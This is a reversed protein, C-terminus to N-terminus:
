FNYFYINVDLGSQVVKNVPNFTMGAKSPTVTVEGFLDSKSWYGNADTTVSGYGNSFSITVGPIGQNYRDVARGNISYTPLGKFDVSYGTGISEIATSSPTFHFGSKTPTVVVPGYLDSKQWNGNADTTVNTFGGSFSITVNALGYGYDNTVKGFLRYAIKGTFNVASNANSVSISVPDFVKGAKTPTVTVTGTLGSQTWFGQANTIVSAIGNSFGITVDAIGNGKEDTVKGSVSYSTANPNSGTFNINSANNSTVVISSPNFVWGEKDPTVTATGYCDAKVWNGNADTRPSIGGIDFDMYVNEIGKGSGDLVKGSVQYTRLGTFDVSDNPSNVNVSVPDFHWGALSAKVTVPGSLNTVSWKGATDTTVSGYGGSFNITVGSVASGWYTVKGSISYYATFNVNSNAGNVIDYSSAFTWGTKAPVVTVQGELGTQSWNGNADTTVSAVTAYGGTFSVTVGSIGAGSKDTVRGSVAYSPSITGTFNVSNTTQSVTTSTPDFSWRAKSPTVVVTGDLATKFWYGKDDTTVSTLSSYGGSFSITVGGIGNGANDVVTGSVQYKVTTGTFNAVASSRNVVRNVPAFTWGTKAPIVKVEGTLGNKSWNGWSDTKVSTFGGDFSITVDAIGVGQEDKVAGSASYPAESAIFDAQPNNINVDASEPSFIWGDKSPKIVRTGSSTMCIKGWQGLEDTLEWDNGGITIKVGKLPAGKTDVVKGFASYSDNPKGTFNMDSTASIVSISAPTFTWNQKKPTAKVSGTFGNKGWLGNNDTTVSTGDDFQITVGAMGSGYNDIVKGSIRYTDSPNATGTFNVSTNAASM